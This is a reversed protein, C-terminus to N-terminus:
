TLTGTVVGTVGGTTESVSIRAETTEFTYQPHPVVTNATRAVLKRPPVTLACHVGNAVGSTPTLMGTAFGVFAAANDWFRTPKLM